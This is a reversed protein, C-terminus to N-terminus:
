VRWAIEIHRPRFYGLGGDGAPVAVFHALVVGIMLAEGESTWGNILAIDGPRPTRTRPLCRDVLAALGGAAEIIEEAM